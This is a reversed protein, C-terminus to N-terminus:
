IQHKREYKTNFYKDIVTGIEQIESIGAREKFYRHLNDVGDDEKFQELDIEHLYKEYKANHKESIMKSCIKPACTKKKNDETSLKFAM